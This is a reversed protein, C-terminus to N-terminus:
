RQALRRALDATIKIDKNGAKLEKDVEDLFLNEEHRQIQHAEDL